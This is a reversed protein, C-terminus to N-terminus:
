RRPRAVEHHARPDRRASAPPIGCPLASPPRHATARTCFTTCAPDLHWREVNQVTSTCFTPPAGSVFREEVNHVYRRALPLAWLTSSRGRRAARDVNQDSGSTGGATM